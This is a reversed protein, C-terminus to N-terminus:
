IPYTWRIKDAKSQLANRKRKDNSWEQFKSVVDLKWNAAKYITGKHVETDQYSVLMTVDPFRSKIDKIMKSFDEISIDTLNKVRNNDSHLGLQEPYKSVLTQVVDKNTMENLPKNIWESFEKFKFLKIM